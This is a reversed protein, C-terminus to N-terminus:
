ARTRRRAVLWALLGLAVAAGAVIAAATEFEQIAGVIRDWQTGLRYAILALTTYWITSAVAIAAIAGAAPVRIAGALPPVVARVGPLFRSLFLAPLGYRNYWHQVRQEAREGMVRSLHRRIWEAGFRRGLAFMALAGGVNGIVVAIITPVPSQDSRAALFSGFAVIVDAPIPPVFNEVAAVTALILYLAAPPLSALWALVSEV